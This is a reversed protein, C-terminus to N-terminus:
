DIPRGSADGEPCAVIQTVIAPTQRHDPAFARVVFSSGAPPAGSIAFEFQGAAPSTIPGYSVTGSANIGDATVLSLSVLGPKEAQFRVVYGPSPLSQCPTLSFQAPPPTIWTLAGRCDRIQTASTLVYSGGAIDTLTVRVTAPAEVRALLSAEIDVRYLGSGLDQVPLAFPTSIGNIEIVAAVRAVAAPLSALVFGSTRVPVEPCTANSGAILSRPRTVWDFRMTCDVIEVPSSLTTVVGRTDRFRLSLTAPGTTAIDLAGPELAVSYQGGSLATVPVSRGPGAGTGEIAATVGGEAIVSPVSIVATGQVATPVAPCLLNGATVASGPPTVWSATIRCGTLTVSATLQARNGGADLATVTITGAGETVPALAAANLTIAYQGGTQDEVPLDFSDGGPFAISATVSTVPREGSTRVLAAVRQPTAPCYFNDAAMTGPPPQVWALAVGRPTPSAVPTPPLCRTISFTTSIEGARDRSDRANVRVRAGINTGVLDNPIDIDFTYTSSGPGPPNVALRRGPRGDIELDVTVDTIGYGSGVDVAATARGPLEPCSRNDSAMRSPPLVSWTLSFPPTCADGQGDGDSDLQDPNPVSPCNDLADCYGDRDTDRCPLCVTQGALIRDPDAICNVQAARAVSINAAQALSFLTDGRRVVENTWGLAACQNVCPPTATATSTPLIGLQIVTPSPIATNTATNTATGTPSPTGTATPTATGTDTPPPSTATAGAAVVTATASATPVGSDPRISSIIAVAGLLLLLLLLAALWRRYPPRLVVTGRASSALGGTTFAVFEVPFRGGFPRLGVPHASTQVQVSSGPEVFAEAPELSFEVGGAPASAEFYVHEAAGSDATATYRLTLLAPAPPTIIEPVVSLAFDLPPLMAAAPQQILTLHASGIILMDDPALEVKQNPALRRGNLVTGNTSGLDVIHIHDDARSIMLHRRSIYRGPLRIDAQESAGIVLPRKGVEFTLVQGDEATIRILFRSQYADM